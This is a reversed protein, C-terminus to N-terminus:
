VSFISRAIHRKGGTIQVPDHKSNYYYIVGVKGGGADWANPYGLDWSGGDDRVILESDWTAGGDHSVAARIGYDPLRYGYVAVLRGDSLEVLSAPSGFDNIRSLFQWTKGGDDSKYVESWMVGEPDRQCRLSCLIRGSRLLLGRPYFWRHGGYPATTKYDGNANGFADNEPTIFTMFHFETGDGVSGYVLPRRKWGNDAEYMFHLCRGDPRVVYSSLSTLSKLTELPLQSPASWTKGADKSVQVARGGFASYLLNNKDLWNIPGSKEFTPRNNGGATMINIEPNAGTWTRGKDTSRVTVMKQGKATRFINNHTITETTTTSYDLTLADFNQMLHGQADQWFGRTYTWACFEDERRYVVANDVDKIQRPAHYAHIIGPSGMRALPTCATVAVAPAALLLARRNILMKEM